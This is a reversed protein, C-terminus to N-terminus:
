AARRAVVILSKQEHFGLPALMFSFQGFFRHQGKFGMHVAKTQVPELGAARLTAAMSDEDFTRVHGLWHFKTGCQPCVTTRRSLDERYPTVLIAYGDRRLVRRIEQLGQALREGVQHELVEISFITDFSESRFPMGCMDGGVTRPQRPALDLGIARPYLRLPGAMGAGVDLIDKGIYKRCLRVLLRTTGYDNFRSKRGEWLQKVRDPSWAAYQPGPAHRNEFVDPRDM